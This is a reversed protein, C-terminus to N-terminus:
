RDSYVSYKYSDGRNFVRHYEVPQRTEDLVVGEVLLLPFGETVQLLEAQAKDAVVAQITQETHTLVIGKKELLTWLSSENQLELPTLAYQPPLNLYVHSLGIPENDALRLREVLWIWDGRELGLLAAVQSDAQEHRLSLLQSGPTRGAEVAAASFSSMRTMPRRIKTRNVFTGKGQQTVLYGERVLEDIARRVTIRSVQFHSGLAQETPLLDQEQFTGTQILALLADRIQSYLPVPSNRDVTATSTVDLDVM